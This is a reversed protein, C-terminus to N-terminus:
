NRFAMLHKLHRKRKNTQGCVGKKFAIQDIAIDGRFGSGRVAEITLKYQHYGKIDVEAEKWQDGQNRSRIWLLAPLLGRGLEQQYVALSGVGSGRMHYAFSLCCNQGSGYIFLIAKDGERRPVSAEIFAYKGSGGFGTKPGTNKSPTEGERITWDFQDDSKENRWRCLGKDFSCIGLVFHSNAQIEEVNPGMISCRGTTFVVSDVAIDGAFSRGRVGEISITYLKGFLNFRAEIWDEGQHGKKSWVVRPLSAGKILQNIILSGTGPGMMHYKFSLCQTGPMYGSLLRTRQGSTHLSAELYIYGGDGDADTYPGTKRSTTAGSHLLWDFDDTNDNIWSCFSGAFSCDNETLLHPPITAKTTRMRTTTRPTTPAFAPCTGKTFKINDIAIDSRWVGIAAEIQLQYSNSNCSLTIRAEHWLNGQEGRRHWLRSRMVGDGFRYVSLSGMDQGHMYYMFSMCQLGKLVGSVLVAKDGFRRPESSEVYLYQGLGMYGATPGTQESPTAGEILQWDFNDNQDNIWECFGREFSCNGVRGADFTRHRLQCCTGKGFYIDDIAIDSQYSSGTIGEFIIQYCAGGIDVVAEHWETGQNGSLTWILDDNKMGERKYVNLYGMYRGYMTYYFQLCMSGCVRPGMLLAKHGRMQPESAETYIYGGKYGTHDESPGTNLTGTSGSNLTWDFEDGLPLNIWECFGGDFNCTGPEGKMEHHVKMNQIRALYNLDKGDCTGNVFTIDDVAIDGQYSKGVRASFIVTYNKGFVTANSHRWANGQNKYRGWVYNEMGNNLERVYIQLDAIDRGYMHYFFRMCRIGSFPGGVMRATEGPDRPWSTEIYAYYGKGTRDENPGTKSSPTKGARRIWDFDDDTTENTWDCFDVDFNCGGPLITVERAVQIDTTKANPSTANVTKLTTLGSLRQSVALVIGIAFLTMKCSVVNM